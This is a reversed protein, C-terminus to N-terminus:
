RHALLPPKAELRGLESQQHATQGGEWSWTFREEAPAGVLRVELRVESAGKLIDTGNVSRPFYLTNRRYLVTNGADVFAQRIPGHDERVPHYTSDRVQLETRAGPGTIIGNGRGELFWYVDIQISDFYEKRRKEILGRARKKQLSLIGMEPQLSALSLELSWFTAYTRSRRTRGAGMNQFSSSWKQILSEYDGELQYQIKGEGETITLAQLSDPHHSVSRETPLFRQAIRGENVSYTGGGSCGVVLLPLLFLGVFRRLSPSSAASSVFM